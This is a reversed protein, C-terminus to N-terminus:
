TLWWQRRERAILADTRYYARNRDSNWGTKGFLRGQFSVVAPLSDFLDASKCDVELVEASPLQGRCAVVIYDREEKAKM